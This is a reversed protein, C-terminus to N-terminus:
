RQLRIPMRTTQNFGRRYYVRGMFRTVWLQVHDGLSPRGQVPQGPLLVEHTEGAVTDVRVLCFYHQGLDHRQPVGVPREFVISLPISVMFFYGAQFVRWGVGPEATVPLDDVKSVTGEILNPPTPPTSVVKGGGVSGSRVTGSRKVLPPPSTVRGLSREEVWMTLDGIQIRDGNGLEHVGVLVSRNVVVTGGCEEIEWGRSTRRLFAHRHAKVLSSNIRINNTSDRGITLETGIALSPLETEKGDKESILWLSM